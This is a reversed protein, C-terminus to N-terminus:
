IAGLVKSPGIPLLFLSYKHPIPHFPYPLSSKVTFKTINENQVVHSYKVGEFHKIFDLDVGPYRSLPPLIGRPRGQSEEPKINQTGEGDGRLTKCRSPPLRPEKHSAAKGSPHAPWWHGWREPLGWPLCAPLSPSNPQNHTQCTTSGCLMSPITLKRPSSKHPLPSMSLTGAGRSGQAHSFCRGRKSAPVPIGGGAPPLCITPGPLPESHSPLILAKLGRLQFHIPLQRWDESPGVCHSCTWRTLWAKHNLIPSNSTVWLPQQEQPSVCLVIM